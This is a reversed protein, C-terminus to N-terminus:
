EAGEQVRFNEIFYEAVSSLAAARAKGDNGGGTSVASISREILQQQSDSVFFVLPNLFKKVKPACLGKPMQANVFRDIQSATEPVLKALEKSKLNRALRKFIAAKKAPSDMGCLRNLTVLLIDAQEDTVDWVICDAKEYGLKELARRRHHGNIIEYCGNDAPRVVLPEYRGMSEISRVLSRFKSDSMVNPNSQNDVLSGLGVQEIRAVM